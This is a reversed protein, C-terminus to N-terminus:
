RIVHRAKLNVTQTGRTITLALREWKPRQGTAHLFEPDRPVPKGAVHTIVDGKKLGRQEAKSGARVELIRMGAPLTRGSVQARSPVAKVRIGFDMLLKIALASGQVRAWAPWPAKDFRRVFQGLQVVQFRGQKLQAVQVPRLQLKRRLVLGKKELEELRAEERELEGPVLGLIARQARRRVEPDPDELAALLPALMKRLEEDVARSAADRRAPHESKFQEVAKELKENEGAAVTGAILCTVVCARM